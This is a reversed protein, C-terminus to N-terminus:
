LGELPPSGNMRDDIAHSAVPERRPHSQEIAGVAHSRHYMDGMARMGSGTQHHSTPPHHHPGVSQSEQRHLQHQQQQRKHEDIFYSDLHPKIDARPLAMYSSESGPRESPPYSPKDGRTPPYVVSSHPTAGQQPYQQSSVPHVRSDVQQVPGGRPSIVTAPATSSSSSPKKQNYTAVQALTALNSQGHLHVPSKDMERSNPRSVPSYSSSPPQVSRLFIHHM